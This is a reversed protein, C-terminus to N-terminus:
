KHRSSGTTLDLPNSLALFALSQNLKSAAYMFLGQNRPLGLEALKPPKEPGMVMDEPMGLGSPSKYSCLDKNGYNKLIPYGRLGGYREISLCKM